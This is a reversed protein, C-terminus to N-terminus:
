GTKRSEECSQSELLAWCGLSYKTISFLSMVRTYTFRDDDLKPVPARKKIIKIEEDIGLGKINPKGNAQTLSTQQAPVDINTDVDRFVDGPNYDFLDDLDDAAPVPPANRAGVDVAAM